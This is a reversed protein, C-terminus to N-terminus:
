VKWNNLIQMENSQESMLLIDDAARISNLYEGNINIQENIHYFSELSATLLKLSIADAQKIRGYM